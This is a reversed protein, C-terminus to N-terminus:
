GIKIGPIAQGDKHFADYFIIIAGEEPVLDGKSSWYETSNYRVIPLTPRNLLNEWDAQPNLYVRKDVGHEVVDM